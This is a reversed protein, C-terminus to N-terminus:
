STPPPIVSPRSRFATMTPPEEKGTIVGSSISVFSSAVDSPWFPSKMPEPTMVAISSRAHM